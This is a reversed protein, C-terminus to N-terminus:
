AVVAVPRIVGLGGLAARIAVIQKLQRSHIRLGIGLYYRVEGLQDASPHLSFLNWFGVNRGTNWMHTRLGVGKRIAYRISSVAEPDTADSQLFRCNTGIVEARDLETIRTFGESLWILPQNETSIDVLSIMAEISNIGAVLLKQLAKAGFWLWSNPLRHWFLSDISGSSSLPKGQVTGEAPSRPWFIDHLVVSWYERTEFILPALSLVMGTTGVTASYATFVQQLPERDNVARRV